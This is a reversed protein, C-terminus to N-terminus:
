VTRLAQMMSESITIVGVLPMLRHRQLLARNREELEDVHFARQVLLRFVDTDLPKQYGDCAGM